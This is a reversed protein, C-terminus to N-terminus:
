EIKKGGGGLPDKKRMATLIDGKVVSWNKKKKVQNQERKLNERRGGGRQQTKLSISQHIDRGAPGVGKKKKRQVEEM